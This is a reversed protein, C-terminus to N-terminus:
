ALTGYGMLCFGLREVVTQNSLVSFQSLRFQASLWFMSKIFRGEPFPLVARDAIM